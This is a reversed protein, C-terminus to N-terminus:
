QEYIYYTTGNITVEYEAGDYSALAAGRDTLQDAIFQESDFYQHYEKPIQSLVNDELYDKAYKKMAENAEDDTLVKFKDKDIASEAEDWTYDAHEMLALVKEYDQDNDIIDPIIVTEYYLKLRADDDMDPTTNKGQWVFYEASLEFYEIISEIQSSTM